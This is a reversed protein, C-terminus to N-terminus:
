ASTALAMVREASATERLLEGVMAGGRMVLIRDSMGLLEPLDSSIMVIAVGQACLRNILQYIEARAGVDVGRTPEDLVLVAPPKLTLRGFLVKQQTGGSLTAATQELSIGRIAVAEALDRAAAHQAGVRLVGRRTFARLQAITLNEAAGM